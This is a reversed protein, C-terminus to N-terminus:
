QCVKVKDRLVWYHTLANVIPNEEDLAEIADALVNLENNSYEVVPPCKSTIAGCATLLILSLSLGVWKSKRM